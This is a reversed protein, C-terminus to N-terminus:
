LTQNANDIEAQTQLIFYSDSMPDFTWGENLIANERDVNVIFGAQQAKTDADLFVIEAARLGKPNYQGMVLISEQGNVYGAEIVQEFFEAPVCYSVEQKNRWSGLLVKFSIKNEVFFSMVDATSEESAFIVLASSENILDKLPKM